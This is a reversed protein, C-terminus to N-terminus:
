YLFVFLCVDQEFGSGGGQQHAPHLIHYHGNFMETIIKHSDSSTGSEKM